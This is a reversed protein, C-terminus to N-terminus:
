TLVLDVSFSLFRGEELGEVEALSEEESESSEESDIVLDEPGYGHARIIALSEPAGRCPMNVM